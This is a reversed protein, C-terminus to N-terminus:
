NLIKVMLIEQNLYEKVMTRQLNTIKLTVITWTWFDKILSFGFILSLSNLFQIEWCEYSDNLM